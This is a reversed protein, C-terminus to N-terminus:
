EKVMLLGNETRDYVSGYESKISKKYNSKVKWGLDILYNLIDLLATSKETIVFEKIDAKTLVEDLINIYDFKWSQFENIFLKENGALRGKFYIDVLSCLVPNEIKEENVYQDLYGNKFTEPDNWNESERKKKEELYRIKSEDSKRCIIIEEVTSQLNQYQLKGRLKLESWYDSGTKDSTTYFKIENDKVVLYAKLNNYFSKYVKVSKDKNSFKKGYGDAVVKEMMKIMENQKKTM